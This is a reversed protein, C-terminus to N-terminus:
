RNDFEVGTGQLMELRRREREAPTMTQRETQARLAELEARRAPDTQVAVFMLVTALIALGVGIMSRNRESQLEERLYGVVGWFVAILPIILLLYPTPLFTGGPLPIRRLGPFIFVVAVFGLAVVATYLSLKWPPPPQRVSETLVTVEEVELDQPTLVGEHADEAAAHGEARRRAAEHRARREEQCPTCLTKGSSTMYVHEPCAWKACRECQVGCDECIMMQCEACTGVASRINCLVCEM